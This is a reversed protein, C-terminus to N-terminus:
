CKPLDNPPPHLSENPGIGNDVLFAMKLGWSTHIELHCHMFWVGPNDAKFRIAAWGGTPVDVTNREIPDVLNFYSEDRGPKFNGVGKGVVYFNGGHLHMPHSEPAIMATDQLVIQVTSNFRLRFVRTGKMTGWNVPPNGTYDYRVPPTAPFDDTFVGSVNYYHAQLLAITPMVFTVNNIAGVLASGNACTACADVGVGITFFLSYDLILPVNAPYIKSDLSRLGSTYNSQLSTATISPPATLHLTQPLSYSNSNNYRLIAYNTLNDVLVPADMFSSVTILYKTPPQNATLLANTTQGPSIYITDTTFPKTYSADVEVVTLNHNAIKFFLEDNLAANIIRLLYTKGSEVHLTYTGASSPSDTDARTNLPKNSEHKADSHTKQLRCSCATSPM